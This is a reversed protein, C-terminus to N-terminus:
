AYDREFTKSLWFFNCTHDSEEGEIISSIVDSTMTEINISSNTNTNLEFCVAFIPISPADCRLVIDDSSFTIYHM